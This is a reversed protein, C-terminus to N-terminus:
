SPTVDLKVECTDISVRAGPTESADMAEFVRAAAAMDEATEFHQLVVATGQESDVLIQLRTAAVGAPPGDSGKIRAVVEAIRDASVDTFRVIRVYVEYVEESAPPLVIATRACGNSDRLRRGRARRDALVIVAGWAGIRLVVLVAAAFLV